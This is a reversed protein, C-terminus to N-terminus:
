TLREWHLADGYTGDPLPDVAHERGYVSFGCRRLVAHSAENDAATEAVLRRFGLGGKEVPSTVQAVVLQAAESAAGRGRASPLIQYGLEAWDTGASRLFVGVEGLPRDTALDAICWNMGLGAAAAEHRRSIFGPFRQPTLSSGEPIWHAPDDVPEGAEADGDRWPRLRVTDGILVPPEYWPTSARMPQGPLLSGMWCDAPGGRAAIKAPTLGHMTFGCAWAVRRSAWNGRNAYWYMSPAGQAFSWACAVRVADSMLGRGRAAPHLAYGIEWARDASSGPRVDISGAYRVGPTEKTGLEEIAWVLNGDRERWGSRALDLFSRADDLDYPSPITTWAIAERDQCQEVMAPLDDETLARLRVRRGTLPPVEPETM